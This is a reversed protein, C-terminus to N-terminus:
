DARTASILTKEYAKIEDYAEFVLQAVNTVKMGKRMNQLHNEVTRTSIFLRVGVQKASLGTAIFYLVEIERKSFGMIITQKIMVAM